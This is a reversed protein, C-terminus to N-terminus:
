QSVTFNIAQKQRFPVYKNYLIAPNWKPSSSIVRVAEQATGYGPDNVAKVNTVRGATDITFSVIARYVGNPAGNKLPVKYKIKEKLYKAWAELGGPFSAEQMFVYNPNEKGNEDFGKFTKGDKEIIVYSLIKKDKTIRRAGLLQNHKYIQELIEGDSLDYDRSTDESIKLEKDSYAWDYMLKGGNIESTQKHWLDGIQFIAIKYAANQVDCSDWDKDLYSYTTDSHQQANACVAILLAAITFLYNKM